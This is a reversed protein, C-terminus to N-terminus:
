KQFNRYFSIWIVCCPWFIDQTIKETGSRQILLMGSNESFEAIIENCNCFTQPIMLGYSESLM